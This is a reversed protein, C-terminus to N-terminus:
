LGLQLMHVDAFLAEPSISQTKVHIVLHVNNIAHGTQPPLLLRDTTIHLDTISRDDQLLCYFPNEHSEPTPFKGLENTEDAMRLGDFLTVIRGDIDGGNSKVLHGPAEHRLFLIDLSCVAQDKQILPVFRYNGRSYRDALHEAWPKAEKRDSAMVQPVGPGPYSVMNSPTTYRIVPVTVQKNLLPHKQWLEALQKHFYKRITHKQTADGDIVLPGDYILRFEMMCMRDQPPSSFCYDEAFPLEEALDDCQSDQQGACVVAKVRM